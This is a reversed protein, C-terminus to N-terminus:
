LALRRKRAAKRRMAAAETLVRCSPLTELRQLMAHLAEADLEPNGFAVCEMFKQKRDGSELPLKANGRAYRVKESELVEGGKLVM